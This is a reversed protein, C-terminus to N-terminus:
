GQRRRAVLRVVLIAPALLAVSSRLTELDALAVGILGPLPLVCLFDVVTLVHARRARPPPGDGHDGTTRARSKGLICM